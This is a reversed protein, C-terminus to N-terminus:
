DQDEGDRKMATRAGVFASILNDTFVAQGWRNLHTYTSFLAGPMTAPSKLINNNSIGLVKAIARAQETRQEGMETRFAFDPVPSVALYVRTQSPLTKLTASLVKLADRYAENWRYDALKGTLITAWNRSTQMSSFNLGTNPDIASGQQARIKARFAEDGGYYLGYAGPLPRYVLRGVGEFQLYDLASRPFELPSTEAKAASQVFDIWSDWSPERRFTAPHFVFVLIKPTANQKVLMGLMQAFGVPGLFGISCFSEVPHLDLAREISLPDIGMLCSSDGLFAIEAAHASSARNIQELVVLHDISLNRLADTRTPNRLYLLHLVLLGFFCFMALPVLVRALLVLARALNLGSACCCM